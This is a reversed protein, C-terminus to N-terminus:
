FVTYAAPYTVLGCMLVIPSSVDCNELVYLGLSLWSILLRISVTCAGCARGFFSIFGLCM